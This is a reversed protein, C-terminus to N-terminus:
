IHYLLIYALKHVYTLILASVINLTTWEHSINKIFTEWGTHFTKLADTLVPRGGAIGPQTTGPITITQRMGLPTIEDPNPNLKLKMSWPPFNGILGEWDKSTEIAKPLGDLNRTMRRWHSQNRANLAMLLRLDRDSLHADDIIRQVRNRYLFPIGFLLHYYFDRIAQRASWETSDGSSKRPSDDDRPRPQEESGTNHTPASNPPVPPSSMHVSAWPAVVLPVALAKKKHLSRRPIGSRWKIHYSLVFNLCFLFSQRDFMSQCADVFSRGLSSRCSKAPHCPSTSM